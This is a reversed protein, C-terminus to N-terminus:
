VLVLFIYFIGDKTTRWWKPLVNPSPELGTDIEVRQDTGIKWSNLYIEQRIILKSASTCKITTIIAGYIEM